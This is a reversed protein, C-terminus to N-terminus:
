CARVQLPVLLHRARWLRAVHGEARRVEACSPPRSCPFHTAGPAQPARLALGGWGSGRGQFNCRCSTSSSPCSRANTSASTAVTPARRFTATTLCVPGLGCPGAARSFTLSVLRSRSCSPTSVLCPFPPGPGCTVKKYRSVQTPEPRTRERFTVVFKDQRLRPHPSAHAGYAAHPHVIGRFAVGLAWARKASSSLMCELSISCWLFPVCHVSPGAGSVREM